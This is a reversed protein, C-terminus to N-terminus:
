LINKIKQIIPIDAETFAYNDLENKTVWNIQSHEYLQFNGEFSDVQYAWLDIEFTPYQHTIKCFFTGIKAEIGMEEMLERKLAAEPSENPNIKGGMLEWKGGFSKGEKRQAILLKNDQIIIAAVVEIKQM